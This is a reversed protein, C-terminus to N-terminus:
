RRNTRRHEGLPEGSLENGAGARAIRHRHGAPQECDLTLIGASEPERDAAAAGPQGGAVDIPGQGVL